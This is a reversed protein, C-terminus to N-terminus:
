PQVERVVALVEYGIVPGDEEVLSALDLEAAPRTRYPGGFDRVFTWGFVGQFGVVYGVPPRMAVELRREAALARDRMAVYCDLLKTAAVNGLPEWNELSAGWEEITELPILDPDTM